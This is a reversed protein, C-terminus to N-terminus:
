NLIIKTAIGNILLLEELQIKTLPVEILSLKNLIMEFEDYNIIDNIRLDLFYERADDTLNILEEPDIYRLRMETLEIM